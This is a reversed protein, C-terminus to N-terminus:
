NYRPSYVMSFCKACLQGACEVYFNRTNISEEKNHKTEEGCMVCSDQNNKFTELLKKNKQM